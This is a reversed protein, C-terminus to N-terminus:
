RSISQSRRKKESFFSPVTSPKKRAQVMILAEAAAPTEKLHTYSVAEVYPIEHHDTVLVTMGLEKAHAIENIASIHILSLVEEYRRDSMLGAIPLPLVDIVKGGSVIAYGGQQEEVTRIALLIDDDNDGAVIMNHSDHAVSTAVAGGKVGFGKLRDRICMQRTSSSSHRMASWLISSTYVCSADRTM